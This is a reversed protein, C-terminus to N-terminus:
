VEVLVLGRFPRSEVSAQGIGSDAAAHNLTAFPPNAM